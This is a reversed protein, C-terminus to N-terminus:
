RFFEEERDVSVATIEDDYDVSLPLFSVEFEDDATLM